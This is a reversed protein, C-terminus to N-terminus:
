ENVQREKEYKVAVTGDPSCIPYYNRSISGDENIIDILTELKNLITNELATLVRPEDGSCFTKYIIYIDELEHKSFEM